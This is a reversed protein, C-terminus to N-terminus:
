IGSSSLEGVLGNVSSQLIQRTESFSLTSAQPKEYLRELIGKLLDTSTMSGVIKGQRTVLLNSIHSRIMLEAADGLSVDIDVSVASDCPIVSTLPERLVKLIKQNLM